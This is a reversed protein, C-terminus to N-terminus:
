ITRTDFAQGSRHSDDDMILDSINKLLRFGIMKRRKTQLALRQAGAQAPTVFRDHSLWHSFIM